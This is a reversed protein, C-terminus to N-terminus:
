KTKNEELEKKLEKFRGTSLGLIPNFTDGVVFEQGLAAMIVEREVIEEVTLRLIGQSKKLVELCKRGRLYSFIAELHQKNCIIILATTSIYLFVDFGYLVFM